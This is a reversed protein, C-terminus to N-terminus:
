IDISPHLVGIFETAMNTAGVQSAQMIFFKYEKVEFNQEKWFFRVYGNPNTNFINYMNVPYKSKIKIVYPNYLKDPLDGILVDKFETIVGATGSGINLNSEIGSNVLVTNNYQMVTTNRFTLYDSDMQNLVSHLQAGLDTRLARCPSLPLNIATDPYRLGYVYPATAASPDSSQATAYQKVPFSYASFYRLNSPDYLPTDASPVTAEDCYLAVTVNDGSQNSPDYITGVPQKVQQARIKEIAYMDCLIGSTQYSMVGTYNSLPTNFFLETCFSDVGADKNTDVKSYGLKLNAGVNDSVSEITLGQVDYGLDLIMTSSDFITSLKEIYFKNNLIYAGCGFRQKCFDFLMNLSMTVYSRGQLNHLCYASTFLTQYPVCDAVPTAAADSLYSSIGEYDTTAPVPFGYGDTTTTALYPVIKELLTNPRFAAAASRPFSPADIPIGSVGYDYNSRISLILGGLGFSLYRSCVIGAGPDPSSATYVVTDDYIIGLVYVRDYRLTVASPTTTNDFYFGDSYAGVAIQMQYNGSFVGTYNLPMTLVEQYCYRGSATNLVPTNANDIEFLVFKICSAGDAYLNSAGVTPSYDPSAPDSSAQFTGRVSALMSIEETDNPLMNKIVFNNKTYPQSHNADSFNSESAFNAAGPIQNNQILFPQLIDNGIFTTTGNNTVQSYQNMCPLIHYGDGIAGHNFGGLERGGPYIGVPSVTYWIPDDGTGDGATGLKASATYQANYLLKIGNHLMPVADNLVWEPVIDTGINNWIPIQFKTDGKSHVDRILDSDLTSIALVKSQMDDSYTKFDLQSSYFVSYTFDPQWLWITLTCYGNLGQTRMIHQIIARAAGSFKYDSNSQGRFIGMYSKDRQWEITTNDWGDPLEPIYFVGLYTTVVWTGGGNLTASYYMDSVDQMTMKFVPDFAM